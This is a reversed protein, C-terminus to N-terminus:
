LWITFSHLSLSLLDERVKNVKKGWYIYNVCNEIKVISILNTEFLLFLNKDWTEVLGKKSGGVGQLLFFEIHVSVPKTLKILWSFYIGVVCLCMGNIITRERAGGPLLVRVLGVAEDM